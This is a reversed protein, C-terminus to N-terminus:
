LASLDLSPPLLVTDIVHIVGNSAEVDPIVVTAEGVTVGSEDAIIELEEGAVTEVAGTAVESSPVEGSLVHYTLIQTLTEKNEPLLLTDLIGEPLAAFAEDTPAFVTFPGESNLTEVLEAAQVAAVLTEFSGNAIAVDVITDGSPEAAVDSEPVAQEETDPTTETATDSPGQCSALAPVVILVALLGLLRSSFPYSFLKM